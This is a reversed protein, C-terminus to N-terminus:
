YPIKVFVKRSRKGDLNLRIFYVGAQLHETSLELSESGNVLMRNLLEGQANLIELTGSNYLHPFHVHIFNSAPNPSITFDSNIDSVGLINLTFPESNSYCGLQNPVSVM